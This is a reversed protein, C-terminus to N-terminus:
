LLGKARADRMLPILKRASEWGRDHIESLLMVLDFMELSIIFDYEDQTMDINDSM